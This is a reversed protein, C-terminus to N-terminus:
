LLHKPFIPLKISSLELFTSMRCNRHIVSLSSISALLTLLDFKLITSESLFGCILIKMKM